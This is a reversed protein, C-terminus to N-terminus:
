RRFSMPENMLEAAFASPHEKAAEAILRWYRVFDDRGPGELLMYDMTAQNIETWGLGPANSGGNMAYCCENLVNYYPDGAYAAWKTENNGCFDYGPVNKVNLSEIFSYPFGTTLPKGLLYPKLKISKKQFWMPAGNGCGVSAVMDGHNDLVVHIGNKDTLDLIKHLRVVFDPDLANEDKPQAGAWMVSLRITNWGKSRM